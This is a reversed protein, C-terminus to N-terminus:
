AGVPRIAIISAIPTRNARNRSIVSSLTDHASYGHQAIRVAGQNNGTVVAAHDYRSAGQWRFLLIDGARLNYTQTIYYKQRYDFHRRLNEAASWTHSNKPVWSFTPNRWWVRDSSYWGTRMKMRGGYYMAKSVFNTCDNSRYEKYIRGANNYAWSATGSGNVYAATQVGAAPAEALPFGDEGMILAGTDDAPAGTSDAPVAAVQAGAAATASLTQGAETDDSESELKVTGGSVAFVFRKAFRDESLQDVGDVRLTMTQIVTTRVLVRDASGNVTMADALASSIGVYSQGKTALAEANAVIAAEQTDLVESFVPGHPSEAAADATTPSAGTVVKNRASLYAQIYDKYRAEGGAVATGKVLATRAVPGSGVGNKPTVAVRYSTANDLGTFVARPAPGEWTGVVTGDAKEAKAVYTIESNAGGNLPANWMALLGTDGATAVVDTVAEPATPPLYEIALKPRKAPDTAAGSHYAAASATGPVTLALGENGGRDIWSQVLVGFEVDGLATGSAYTEGGSATLLDKGSQASTWPSSLEYVDPQQVECPGSCDSRTLVLKASTVRAGKPLAALDAKLHTAWLHGDATGVRLTGAPPTACGAADCDTATSVSALSADGVVLSQTAPAPPLPQVRVMMSQETSWPSCGVGTCARVAWRYTAGDVLKGEPIQLAARSGSEVSVPPM